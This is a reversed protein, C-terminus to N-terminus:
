TPLETAQRRPHTARPLGLIFIILVYCLLALAAALAMTLSSGNNMKGVFTAGALWAALIALLALASLSILPTARLRASRVVAATATILLLTGLLAHVSLVVPGNGVAAGFGALLGKGRDAAPLTSYLNVIIGLSYQILLMVVAALANARLGRM